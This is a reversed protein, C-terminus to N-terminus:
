ADADGIAEAAAVGIVRDLMEVPGPRGLGSSSVFDDLTERTTYRPTWDLAKKIRSIDVVRGYRLLALHEASFDSTGAYRGFEGRVRLAPPPVPLAPRGARRIAQWVTVVGDGAVNYTGAHDGLVMRRLAEVGDDAHLFQLRPDFGMVTPVAPMRFYRAFTSDVGVGLVNAFRLCSTTVDPRRRAFGRVYGEVETADKAAGGLPLAHHEMDETFVAPDRYSVGYVATTSRVVLKRVSPVRQCAALLQMTGVINTEKMAGVGGAFQPATVLSAHVVTDVAASALLDALHPTKMVVDVFETRGLAAADRPATDDIGIIRDVSPEDQLARALRTGPYRSVGTILVTRAM